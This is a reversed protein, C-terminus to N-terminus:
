YALNIGVGGWVQSTAAADDSLGDTYYLFGRIGVDGYRTSVDFLKNLSCDGTLGFQYHQFGNVNKGDARSSTFFGPESVGDNDIFATYGGVYAVGASGTLTLGTEEFVCRYRVGSEVYVGDYLDLDYAAALYPTPIPEGHYLTRDDLAVGLFVESTQREDREPYLYATYGGTFLLPKILWDFGVSPRIEQFDSVPDSDAVNVFVSAYPHPLKGLDVAAKADFQLNLSDERGPVEFVEVGRYVYDTFYSLGLDFHVAGENVGSEGTPPAPPAYVSDPVSQGQASSAWAAALVVALRRRM